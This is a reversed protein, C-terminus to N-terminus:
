FTLSINLNKIEINAIYILSATFADLKFNNFRGSSNFIKNNNRSVQVSFLGKKHDFRIQRLSFYTIYAKQINKVQNLIQRIFKGM